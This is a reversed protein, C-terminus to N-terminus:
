HSEREDRVEKDLEILRTELERRREERRSRIRGIGFDIWAILPSIVFAIALLDALSAHESNVDTGGGGPEPKPKAKRGSSRIRACGAFAPHLCSM